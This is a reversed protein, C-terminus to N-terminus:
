VTKAGDLGYMEVEARLAAIEFKLSMKEELKRKIFRRTLQVSDYLSLCILLNINKFKNKSKYLSRM